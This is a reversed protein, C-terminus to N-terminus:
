FSLVSVWPAFSYFYWILVSMSIWLKTHAYFWDWLNHWLCTFVLQVHLYPFFKWIRAMSSPYVLVLASTVAIKKVEIQYLNQELVTNRFNRNHKQGKMTKTDSTSFFPSPIPQVSVLLVLCLTSYFFNCFLQPFFKSWRLHSINYEFGVTIVSICLKWVSGNNSM